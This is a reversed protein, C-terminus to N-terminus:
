RGAAANRRLVELDRVLKAAYAARAQEFTDWRQKEFQAGREQEYTTYGPDNALLYFGDSPGPSRQVHRLWFDDHAVVHHIDDPQLSFMSAIQQM